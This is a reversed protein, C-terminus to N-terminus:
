STAIPVNSPAISGSVALKRSKGGPPLLVLVAEVVLTHGHEAGAADAALFGGVEQQPLPDLIDIVQLAADQAIEFLHGGLVAGPLTFTEHEVVAHGHPVPQDLPRVIQAVAATARDQGLIHFTGFIFMAHGAMLADVLGRLGVLRPEALPLFLDLQRALATLLM